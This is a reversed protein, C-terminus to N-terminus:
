GNPPLFIYTQIAPRYTKGEQVEKVHISLRLEEIHSRDSTIYLVSTIPDTLKVPFQKKIQSLQVPTDLCGADCAFYEKDSRDLAAYLV